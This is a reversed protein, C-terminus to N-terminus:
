KKHVIEIAYSPIKINEMKQKGIYKQIMCCQALYLFSKYSMLYSDYILNVRRYKKLICNTNEVGIRRKYITRQRKTLRKILKKNKTNRKNYDIIPRYGNEVCKQRFDNTDYMKDALMYPKCKLNLENIRKKTTDINIEGIKADNKNGSNIVTSLPIRNSDVILSVKYSNKNKFHKNRGLEEKGNINMIYTTDISQIKLKSMNNYKMYQIHMIEYVNEFINHQAFFIAHRNLTKANIPGRYNKYSLATKTIYLLEVIVIKAGYKQNKTKFRYKKPFKEIVYNYTVNVFVENEFYLMISNKLSHQELTNM